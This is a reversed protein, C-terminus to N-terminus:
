KGGKKDKQSSIEGSAPASITYNRDKILVTIGDKKIETIRAEGISDGTKVVKDDIIAQPFRGGWIIGQVRMANVIASADQSPRQGGAVAAKEESYRQFPDRYKQAQYNVVPRSIKGEPPKQPM